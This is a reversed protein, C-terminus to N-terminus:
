EPKLDEPFVAYGSPPPFFTQMLQLRRRLYRSPLQRPGTDVDIDCCIGHLYLTLTDVFAQKAYSRFVKTERRVNTQRRLLAQKEHWSVEDVEGHVNAGLEERLLSFFQNQVEISWREAAAEALARYLHYHYDAVEQDKIAFVFTTEDETTIKSMVTHRQEAPKDLCVVYEPKGHGKERGNARELYPVLFISIRPLVPLLKPPLASIPEQLYERTDEESLPLAVFFYSFRNSLPVVEGRFREVFDEVALRALDTQSSM